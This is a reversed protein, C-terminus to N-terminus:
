AGSRQVTFKTTYGTDYNHEHKSAIVYYNGSFREGIRKIELTEGARILPDGLTEGEANIFQRILSNYAGKAIRDAHTDDIVPEDIVATDSDGFTETSLKFGTSEGEMASVEDGSQATGTIEKKSAPDWGRVEVSSGQTLTRLRASFKELTTGFELSASPPQDEQSPRLILDKDKVRIEFGIRSARHLLFDYNSINNQFVYPYMTKTDEVKSKLGADVAIKEAIDSDSMELFSRRYKGFRLRHMRDFGRIVLKPNESFEPELDSIEGVIMEESSDNGMSITIADGLKFTKLDIGTWEGKDFDKMALSISFMAPVNIEDEITISEVKSFLSDPIRSNNHLLKVSPTIVGSDAM